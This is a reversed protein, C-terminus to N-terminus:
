VHQLAQCPGFDYTKQLDIFLLYIKINHEVAMEILERTSFILDM